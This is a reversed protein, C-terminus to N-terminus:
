FCTTILRGNTELFAAVGRWMRGATTGAFAQEARKSLNFQGRCLRPTDPHHAVRHGVEIGCPNGRMAALRPPHIACCAGGGIEEIRVQAEDM